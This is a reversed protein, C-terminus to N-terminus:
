DTHTSSEAMMVCAAELAGQDFRTNRNWVSAVRKLGYTLIREAQGERDGILDEFRVPCVWERDLWPAYLKWRDVVGPYNGMGEIVARLVRSFCGLDRYAAKDPHVFRKDDENLIHHAQSVAVDRLDRYVFM